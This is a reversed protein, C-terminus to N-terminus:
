FQVISLWEELSSIKGSIWGSGGRQLKLGNFWLIVKFIGQNLPIGAKEPLM